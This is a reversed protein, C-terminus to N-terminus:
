FPALVGLGAREAGAVAAQAIAIDQAALASGAATRMETLSAGDLLARARGREADLLLVAGQVMPAGRSPNDPFVSVVKTGLAGHNGLVAPMVLMLGRTSELHARVPVTATGGSLEGFAIRMADVAAGTPLARRIDAAALVRIEM